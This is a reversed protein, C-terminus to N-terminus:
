CRRSIVEFLLDAHRSDYSLYGLEDIVLLSPCCYFKLRRNLGIAGEQATLDNLMESTTTVRFPGLPREHRVHM